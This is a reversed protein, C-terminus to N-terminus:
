SFASLQVTYIKRDTWDLTDRALEKHIDNMTEPTIDLTALWTNWTMHDHQEKESVSERIVDKYRESITPPPKLNHLVIEGNENETPLTFIQGKLKIIIGQRRISTKHWTATDTTYPTAYAKFNLIDPVMIQIATFNMSSIQINWISTQSEPTNDESPTQYALFEEPTLYYHNADDLTIKHIQFGQIRSELKVTYPHDSQPDIQNQGM